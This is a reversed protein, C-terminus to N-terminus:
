PVRINTRTLRREGQKDTYEVVCVATSPSGFAQVLPFTVSEHAGIQDTRNHKGSLIDFDAVLAGDPSEYHFDVDLVASDTKNEIVMLNRSTEFRSRQQRGLTSEGKVIKPVVGGDGAGSIREAQREQQTGGRVTENTILAKEPLTLGITATSEEPLNNLASTLPATLAKDVADALNFQGRLFAAFLRILRETSPSMDLRAYAAATLERRHVLREFLIADLQRPLRATASAETAFRSILELLPDAYDPPSPLFAGLANAQMEPPANLSALLKGVYEDVRDSLARMAHFPIDGSSLKAMATALFSKPDMTNAQGAVIALNVMAISVAEALFWRAVGNAEVDSEPPWIKSLQRILGLTRKLADFCDLFWVESVLFWYARELMPDSKVFSAVFARRLAVTEGQSGVDEVDNIRLRSERLALEDLHQITVGLRRCADRVVSTARFATTIEASEAGVVERLGRLWLARDLPRPTSKSSGSKVEGISRRPVLSPDLSIGLVDLDTVLSVDPGFRHQLDIGRRVYQGDWFWTQAVRIEAKTGPDLGPTKAAPPM